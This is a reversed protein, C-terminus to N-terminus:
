ALAAATRASNVNRGRPVVDGHRTIRISRRKHQASAVAPLMSNTAFRVGDGQKQCPDWGASLSM